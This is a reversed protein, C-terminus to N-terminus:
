QVKAVIQELYRTAIQESVAKVTIEYHHKQYGAEPGWMKYYEISPERSYNRKAPYVSWPSKETGVHNRVVADLKKLLPLPGEIKFKFEYTEAIKVVRLGEEPNAVQQEMGELFKNFRNM